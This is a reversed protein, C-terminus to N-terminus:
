SIKEFLESLLQRFDMFPNDDRFCRRTVLYSFFLSFHLSSYFDAEQQSIGNWRAVQRWLQKIKDIVEHRWISAVEPDSIALTHILSYFGVRRDDDYIKSVFSVVKYLLEKKSLNRFEVENLFEDRNATFIQQIAKRLLDSKDDFYLYITSRAMGGAKAIDALSTKYYGKSVFLNLATSIIEDPRLEKKRVRKTKEM